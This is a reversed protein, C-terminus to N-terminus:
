RRSRSATSAGRGPGAGAALRIFISGVSVLHVARRAPRLALAPAARPRPEGGRGRGGRARLAEDLATWATAAARPWTAAGAAAAASPALADKLLAGVDEALGASRAFVLHARGRARSASCRSRPRSARRRPRGARAPRGPAATSRRPWSPRIAAARAADLLRRAEGELARELLGRCPQGLRRRDRAPPAVAEALPTPRRRSCPASSTWAAQRRHLVGSARARRLRLPHAHRGQLARPRARGGRRGRVHQAPAHRRLAPPRLGGGGRHARPRRGGRARTSASRARRPARDAHARTM